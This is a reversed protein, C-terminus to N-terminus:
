IVNRVRTVLRTDSGILQDNNLNGNLTKNMKYYEVRKYTKRNALLQTDTGIMNQYTPAPLTSGAAFRKDSNKVAIPMSRLIGGRGHPAIFRKVAPMGINNAFQGSSTKSQILSNVDGRSAMASEYQEKTMKVRLYEPVDDYSKYTTQFNMPISQDSNNKLFSNTYYNPEIIIPPPAPLAFIPSKPEINITPKINFDTSPLGLMAPETSNMM